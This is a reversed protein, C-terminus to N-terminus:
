AFLCAANSTAPWRNGPWPNLLKEHNVTSDRRKRVALESLVAHPPDPRTLHPTLLSQAFTLMM